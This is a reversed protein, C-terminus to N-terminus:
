CTMHLHASRVVVDIVRMSVVGMVRHIDDVGAVDVVVAAGLFGATLAIPQM